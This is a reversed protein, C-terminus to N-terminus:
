NYFITKKPKIPIVRIFNGFILFFLLTKITIPLLSMFSDMTAFTIGMIFSLYFGTWSLENLYIRFVSMILGIFISIMFVGIIGFEYYAEGIPSLGISTIYDSKHILDLKHGMLNYDIGIGPKGPWLFRPVLAIFNDLYDLKLDTTFLPFVQVAKAFPIQYNLRRLVLSDSLAEDNYNSDANSIFSKFNDTIGNENNIRHFSMFDFVTPIMLILLLSSAIFTKKYKSSFFIMIVPLIILAIKAKSGSIIALSISIIFVLFVLLINMSSMKAYKFKFAFYLLFLVDLKETFRLTNVYPNPSLYEYNYIFWFGNTILYLKSLYSTLLVLFLFIYNSKSFIFLHKENQNLAKKKGLCLIMTMLMCITFFFIVLQSKFIDKQNLSYYELYLRTNSEADILFILFLPLLLTLIFYSIYINFFFGKSFSKISFLIILIINAYILFISAAFDARYFPVYILLGILSIVIAFIKFFTSKKL